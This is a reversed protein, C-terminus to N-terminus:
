LQSRHLTWRALLGVISAHPYWFAPNRTKSMRSRCCGFSIAYKLGGATRFATRGPDPLQAGARACGARYRGAPLQDIM